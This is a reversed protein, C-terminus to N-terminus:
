ETDSEYGASSEAFRHSRMADLYALDLAPRFDLIARRQRRRVVERLAEHITDTTRTTGLADAAQRVLETDLDITTHKRMWCDYADALREDICIVHWASCILSCAWPRPSAFYQSM